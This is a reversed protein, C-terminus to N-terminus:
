ARLELAASIVSHPSSPILLRNACRIWLQSGTIWDPANLDKDEAEYDATAHAPTGPVTHIPEVLHNQVGDGLIRLVSADPTRQCFSVKSFIHFLSSSFNRSSLSLLRM